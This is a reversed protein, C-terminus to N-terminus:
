RSVRLRQGPRILDSRLNNWQRLQAVTVRHRQAIGGLTDGSKVTYTTATAAATVEARLNEAPQNLFRALYLTDKALIEAEHAIFRSIDHQPLRLAYTREVAPIIDEKYQPNLARLAEIPIDLTSAVQNFHMLRHVTVTDTSIPLPPDVPKIGHQNHFTYAYNVAVFAPIYGRTESPLYPYIDWFTTTGGEGTTGTLGARQLARNVNGPGCNYAAIALTWDGYMRYLDRLYRCAARTALVPDRRDDIMSTVELGYSRGTALMFQWLGTAGMHSVATPNLASEVIPLMRLELPLGHKALEEEIMPFYFKSLGLMRGILSANRGTYSVIYRKIIDNFGMSIPSVIMRMRARYVSDPIDTVIPEDMDIDIFQSFFDGFSNVVNNAYWEALAADFVQPSSSINLTYDREQPAPAPIERIVPTPEAVEAVMARETAQQAAPITHRPARSQTLSTVHSCGPAAFVGAVATAIVIYKLFKM